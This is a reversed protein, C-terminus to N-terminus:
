DTSELQQAVALKCLEAVCSADQSQVAAHLLQAVANSDLLQAAQSSCLLSLVAM